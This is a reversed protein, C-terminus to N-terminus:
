EVGVHERVWTRFARIWATERLESRRGVWRAFEDFPLWPFCRSQDSEAYGADQQLLNIRLREGDHRWVEPVGLAAYIGMRNVCSSHM